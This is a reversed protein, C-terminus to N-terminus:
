DTNQTFRFYSQDGNGLIDVIGIRFAHEKRLHYAGKGLIEAPGKALM